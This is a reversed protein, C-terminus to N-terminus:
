EVIKDKKARISALFEDNAIREKELAEKDEKDMEKMRKQLEISNMKVRLPEM